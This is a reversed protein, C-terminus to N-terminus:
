ALVGIRALLCPKLRFAAQAVNQHRTAGFFASISVDSLAVAAAVNCFLSIFPIRQPDLPPDIRTSLFFFCGFVPTKACLLPNSGGTRKLRVCSKWDHEKFWESMEANRYPEPTNTRRLAM